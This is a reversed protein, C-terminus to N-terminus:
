VAASAVVSVVSNNAVCGVFCNTVIDIFTVRAQVVAIGISSAGVIGTPITAHAVIAEVAVPNLTLVVIFTRKAEAALVGVAVVGFAREGAGTFSAVFIAVIDVIGALDTDVDFLTGVINVVTDVIRRTSVSNTAEVTGAVGSIITKPILSAVINVFTARVVCAVDVGVAEVIIPAVTTSTFVTEITVTKVTCVDIFTQDVSIVTVYVCVAGVEVSCEATGTFDSVGTITDVRTIVNIFAASSSVHAAVVSNAGVSDAAVLAVTFKSIASITEFTSVDVFAGLIGVVADTLVYGAM